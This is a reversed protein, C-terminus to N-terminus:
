QLSRELQQRQQLFRGRSDGIVIDGGVRARECISLHNGQLRTMIASYPVGQYIGGKWEPVYRYGLSLEAKEGSEIQAISDARWFTLSCTVYPADFKADNGTAGCVLDARHDVATLPLHETTIPLGEFTALAKKLEDPPRLLPYFRGPSLGAEEWGPIETAEYENVRAASIKADAIRMRGDQDYVRASARDYALRPRTFAPAVM